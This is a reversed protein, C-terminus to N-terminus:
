SEYRVRLIFFLVCLLLASIGSLYGLISLQNQDKLFLFGAVLVGYTLFKILPFFLAFNRIKDGFSLKLDDNIERLNLIQQNKEIKKVFIMLPRKEFHYHRARISINKKYNLYSSLIVLFASLFSFEFSLVISLNLVGFGLFGLYFCLHCFCVLIFFSRKGQM